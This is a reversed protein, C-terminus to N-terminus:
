YGSDAYYTPRYVHFTINTSNFASLPRNKQASYGVSNQYSVMIGAYSSATKGTVIMTHDINGDSTWDAFVVDGIQIANFALATTSSDKTVFTFHLGRYSPLSNKAYAYFSNADRWAAGVYGWNTYGYAWIRQSSNLYDTAFYQAKPYVKSPYRSGVLGGLVAQSVFNTCNGGYSTYDVFYRNWHETDTSPAPTSKYVQDIAYEVAKAANYTCKGVSYIACSNSDASYAPASIGGLVGVATVHIFFQFRTM